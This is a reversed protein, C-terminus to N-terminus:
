FRGAAATALQRARELTEQDGETYGVFQLTLLTDGKLVGFIRGMGYWAAKDGIGPIEQPQPMMMPFMTAGGPSYIVMSLQKGSATSFNCITPQNQPAPSGPGVPEGLAAQVEEQTVLECAVM